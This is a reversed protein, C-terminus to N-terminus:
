FDSKVTVKTVRNLETFCEIILFVIEVSNKILFVFSLLIPVAGRNQRMVMSPFLASNEKFLDMLGVSHSVAASFTIPLFLLALTRFSKRSDRM